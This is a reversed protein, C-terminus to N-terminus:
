EEILMDPRACTTATDPMCTANRTPTKCLAKPLFLREDTRHMPRTQTNTSIVPEDGDATLAPMM